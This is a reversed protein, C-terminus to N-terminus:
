PRTRASMSVDWAQPLAHWVRVVRSWSWTTDGFALPDKCLAPITRIRKVTVDGLIPYLFEPPAMPIM